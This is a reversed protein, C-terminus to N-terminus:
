LIGRRGRNIVVWTTGDWWQAYGGPLVVGPSQVHNMFDFPGATDAGFWKETIFDSILVPDGNAGPRTYGLKDAEVPDAVEGFWIRGGLGDTNEDLRTLGPNVLMEWLEHTFGVTWDYKFYRSTGVFVQSDPVGDTIEHYALANQVDSKDKLTMVIAGRPAADQGIFVLKADAKWIPAFDQSTAAQFAPIDNKVVSDSVYTSLNRVYITQASSVSSSKFTAGTGFVL